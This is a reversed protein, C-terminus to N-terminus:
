PLLKDGKDSRYINKEDRGTENAEPLYDLIGTAAIPWGSRGPDEFEELPMSQLKSKQIDTLLESRAIQKVDIITFIPHYWYVFTIAEAQPPLNGEVRVKGDSTISLSERGITLLAERDSSWGPPLNDMPWYKRPLSILAKEVRIPDYRLDFELSEAKPNQNATPVVESYISMDQHLVVRDWFNPIKGAPFIVNVSGSVLRGFTYYSQELDMKNLTVDVEEEAWYVYLRDKCLSCNMQHVTNGGRAVKANPCRASRQWTVKTSYDKVIQDLDSGTRDLKRELGRQFYEDTLHSYPPRKNYSM